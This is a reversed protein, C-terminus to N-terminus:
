STSTGRVGVGGADGTLASVNWVSCVHPYICVLSAYSIDFLEQSPVLTNNFIDTPWDTTFELIPMAQIAEDSYNAMVADYSITDVHVETRCPDTVYDIGTKIQYPTCHLKACIYTSQWKLTDECMGTYYDDTSVTTGFTISDFCENCATVCYQAHTPEGEQLSKAVLLLVCLLQTLM